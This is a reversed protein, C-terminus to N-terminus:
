GEEYFEPKLFIAKHNKIVHLHNFPRAEIKGGFHHGFYRGGNTNEYAHFCLLIKYKMDEVQQKSFALNNCLLAKIRFVPPTEIKYIPNDNQYIVKSMQWVLNRQTVCELFISNLRITSYIITTPEKRWVQNVNSNCLMFKVLNVSIPVAYFRENGGYYVSNVPIGDHYYEIGWIIPM